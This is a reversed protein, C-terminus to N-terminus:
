DYEFYVKIFKKKKRTPFYLWGFTSFSNHHKDILIGDILTFYEKYSDDVFEIEQATSLDIGVIGLKKVLNYTEQKLKNNLKLIKKITM